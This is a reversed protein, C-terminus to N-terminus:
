ININKFNLNIKILNYIMEIQILDSWNIDSRILDTQSVFQISDYESRLFKGSSLFLSHRALIQSTMDLWICPESNLAAPGQTCM